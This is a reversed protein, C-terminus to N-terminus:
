RNLTREGKGGRVDCTQLCPRAVRNTARNYAEHGQTERKVERWVLDIYYELVRMKEADRAIKSRENKLAAKERHLAKEEESLRKALFELVWRSLEAFDTM